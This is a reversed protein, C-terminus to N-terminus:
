YIFVKQVKVGEENVVRVVYTADKFEAVNIRNYADSHENSYVVRGLMDVIQVSGEISLILEEGNQYVFQSQAELQSGQALRIVFRNANDENSAIFSYEDEVLMNTEVGTFRDVLTVTEFEGNVDLSITHMGMEKAEFFLEVETTNEDYGLISYRRNNNMVYVEAINPNMNDLKSFGVEEKGSFKVIANNSGEKSSAIVNIYDTNDTSRTRSAGYSITPNEGIAEVFFGDGVPVIGKDISIVYGGTTPDVTAFGDYVGNVNVNEWDMDFSFPNGLLHFNALMEDEYYSLEKSFTTAPNLIGALKLYTTYEYSALYACAQQFTTEFEEVHGKYNIWQLEKTGDYKFLDYDYYEPDFDSINVDKIPSSIFQWGEAHSEDWSTPAYVTMKFTAAVNDNNQFVQAGDNIIFAEADENVFNGSVTLTSNKEMTLSADEKVYLHKATADTNITVDANVIALDNETPIVGKSWNEAVNWEGETIFTNGKVVENSWTIISPKSAAEIPKAVVVNDIGSCPSYYRNTVFAIYVSKGKYADLPLQKNAWDLQYASTNWLNTWPGDISESIKVYITNYYSAYGLSHYPMLYDFSLVSNDDESITIRPTIMYYLENAKYSKGTNSYAAYSGSSPNNGQCTSLVNWDYTSYSSNEKKVSWGTPMAGGEFGEEFYPELSTEGEYYVEVGYQYLGDELESMDDQYSESKINSAVLVADESTKEKRYLSYSDIGEPSKAKYFTINDVYYTDEGSNGSGDKKYSWKFTHYGKTVPYEAYTWDVEGSIINMQVGDIYFFGKDWNTESSIKHYFSMVLNDAPVNVMISIDSVVEDVGKGGSKMSYSGDYKKQETITWPHYELNTTWANGLEGSEFNETESKTDSWAWDVHVIDVDSEANVAAIPAYTYQMSVNVTKTTNYEVAVEETYVKYEDKTVTVTYNGAPMDEGFTGDEATVYSYSVETGFDDEGVVSVAAESLPTVGDYDYVVGAMSGNGSVKITVAKSDKSETYQGDIEYVARVVVIYGHEMNYSLTALDYSTKEPSIIYNNVKTVYKEGNIITGDTFYVNYGYLYENNEIADWSITTYDGIFLEEKSAAVNKPASISPGSGAANIEIQLVNVFDLKSPSLSTIIEYNLPNSDRRIQLTRSKAEYSSFYYSNNYSGSNDQVCLLINGGEYNFENDLEIELWSMNTTTTIDGNFVIDSETVEVLDKNSDFTEKDTNLMYITLNRTYTKASEQNFAIKTITGAGTGIESATYIQQTFSYEYYCDTPLLNTNSTREGITITEQAKVTGFLGLLCTMMLLIFKKKMLM